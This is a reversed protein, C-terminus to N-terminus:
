ARKPAYLLPWFCWGLVLLSVIVGIPLVVLNNHQRLEAAASLALYLARESRIQFVVLSKNSSANQADTKFVSVSLQEGAHVNARFNAEDFIVRDDALVVFARAHGSLRVVLDDHDNPVISVFSGSLEAVTDPAVRPVTFSLLTFLGFAMLALIGVVLRIPHALLWYMRRESRFRPDHRGAAVVDAYALKHKWLQAYLGARARLAASWGPAIALARGLDTLADAHRDMDAYCLARSYFLQKDHTNGDISDYETIARNYERLGHYAAGVRLKYTAANLPDLEIARRADELEGSYDGQEHRVLARGLYGPGYYPDLRLALEFDVLAHDILSAHFLLLGREVYAPVFGPALDLASTFSRLADHWQGRELYARAQAYWQDAESQPPIDAM